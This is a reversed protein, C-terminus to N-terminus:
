SAAPRWLQDADFDSVTPSARKRNYQEDCIYHRLAARAVAFVKHAMLKAPPRRAM